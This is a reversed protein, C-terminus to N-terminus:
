KGRSIEYQMEAWTQVKEELWDDFDEILETSLHFAQGLETVSKIRLSDFGNLIEPYINEKGDICFDKPNNSVYILDYKDPYNTKQIHEIFNRLILTDNFNNKNNSFPGEKTIALNAVFMKQEDTIDIKKASFLLQEVEEVRLRAKELRKEETDLKELFISLEAKEKDPLFKTLNKASKYEQKISECLSKITSEKNRTWEEIVIENTLLEFENNATKEKLSEFLPDFTEKTLYIWINTDLALKSAM